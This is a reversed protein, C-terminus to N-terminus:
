MAIDFQSVTEIHSTNPFLDFVETVRHAYGNDILLRADRALSGADCSVLVFRSAGTAVLRAVAQKDLGSRAPDAIVLDAATPEWDEVRCEFVEARGNARQDSLNHSADACASPSAEVVVVHRALRAVTAAFLGVGGYADVVSCEELKMGATARTVAAVLLEAAAPSPQFFSGASVVFRHGGVDEHVATRLHHTIGAGLGFIEGGADGWASFDGTSLGVRLTIEESRYATVSALMENIRPHAVPCADILVLDHSRRSRFGVRGNASVGLRVTTRYGWPEIAAGRVVPPYEIKATRTLAERVMETKFTLQAEPKIHQWDCGGCGRHWMECAEVVRNPSADFVEVVDATAFDRKNSRYRVLVTEDPLAGDVFVVRGTADRALAAGGVVMHSTRITETDM